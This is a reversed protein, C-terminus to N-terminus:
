LQGQIPCAHHQFCWPLVFNHYCRGEGEGSNDWCDGVKRTTPDLTAFLKDEALVGADTLTNLLTSKGSHPM